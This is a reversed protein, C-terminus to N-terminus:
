EKPVAILGYMLKFIDTNKIKEATEFESIILFDFDVGHVYVDVLAKTHDVSTWQYYIPAQGGTYANEYEEEPSVSLGGCEHDATM